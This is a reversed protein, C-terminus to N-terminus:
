TVPLWGPLADEPLFVPRYEILHPFFPLNILNALYVSGQEELVLLKAVVWEPAWIGPEKNIQCWADCSAIVQKSEHPWVVMYDDEDELERLYDANCWCITQM